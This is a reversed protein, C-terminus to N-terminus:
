AAADAEALLLARAEHDTIARGRGLELELAIEGLRARAMQLAASRLRSAEAPPQQGRAEYRATAWGVLRAASRPRGRSAAFWAHLDSMAPLDLSRMLDEGDVILAAAEDFRGLATLSTAVYLCAYARNAQDPQGRLAELLAQGTVVADEHRGLEGLLFVVNSLAARQMPPNGITAAWQAEERRLQLAQELRGNLREWVALMGAAGLRHTAPWETHDEILARVRVAAPELALDPATAGRLLAGLAQFEGEEDGLAIFLELARRASVASRPDSRLVRSRTLELWYRAQLLPSPAAEAHPECSALWAAADGRRPSFVSFIGAQAMLEVALAPAHALCWAAAAGLNDFEPACRPMLAHVSGGGFVIARQEAFFDRLAAAHRQRVVTDEGSAQLQQAAYARVTELLRYRPADLGETVVLSRAVLGALADVADWHELVAGSGSAGAVVASFLALTFGGSFVACRRLVTREPESLLAHSWDLATQLTRHRPDDPSAGGLARFRQALSQRLGDLGLVPLRAAAMELALPLGDLQRCIEVVAPVREPTLAFRRDAARAREVFLAVAGHDLARERDATPAPVALPELRLVSEGAAGLPLQSTVLVRLAAVGALADLVRAVDAALHEANDLVLWRPAADDALARAAARVLAALADDGALSWRMAEAIRAPLAAADHLVALEVWASRASRAPRQALARALATKGVGAPGALTVVRHQALAQEGRALDAARGVLEPQPDDARGPDASAAAPAAAAAGARRVPHTFRYGRGPVTAIAEPGLVKRLSSIQVAINNEEVIVDPWVRDLLEDRTVLRDPREALALLLEFARGGLVVPRGAALLRRERPQLEFNAFHLSDDDPPPM